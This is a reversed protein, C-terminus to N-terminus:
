ILDLRSISTSKRKIKLMKHLEAKSRAVDKIKFLPSSNLQNDSYGNSYPEYIFYPIDCFAAEGIASSVGGIVCHAFCIHDSFRGRLLSINEINIGSEILESWLVLEMDHKIKVALRKLNHSRASEIMDILSKVRSGSRGNISLDYPSLIMIIADYKKEKYRFENGMLIPPFIKIIEQNSEKKGELMLQHHSGIAYLRDFFKPGIKDKGIQRYYPMAPFGDVMWSTKIGRKKALQIALTYPEYLESTVVFEVPLYSKFLNEYCAITFIFYERYFAYRNSMVKSIAIVLNVDWVTNIRKLVDAIADPSFYDNYHDPVMSRAINIQDRSPYAFYASKWLRSVNMSLWNANRAEYKQITWDKVAITKRRLLFQIPRQIVKLISFLWLHRDRILDRNNISSIVPSLNHEPGYEKIRDGFLRAIDTFPKSENRSIYIVDFKGLWYQLCFYERCVSSINIFVGTSFAEAVSLSNNVCLDKGSKDRHWNFALYEISFNIQDSELGHDYFSVVSFEKQECLHDAHGLIQCETEINKNIWNFDRFHSVLIANM